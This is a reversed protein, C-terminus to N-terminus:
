DNNDAIIGIGDGGDNGNFHGEVRTQTPEEAPTPSNVDKIHYPRFYHTRKPDSIKWENIKLRLNGQDLCSLQLARKVMYIHNKLDNDVPFYARDNPNPSSERCLDHMVYHRLLRRVEHIETIGEAVLEVIKAVVKDNMRQSFGAIGDGTHHDAETPLSVFYVIRTAKCKQSSLAAKLESMRRERLTHLTAKGQM